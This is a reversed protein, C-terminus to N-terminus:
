LEILLEVLEKWMSYQKRSFTVILNEMGVHLEVNLFKGNPLNMKTKVVKRNLTVRPYNKYVEPPRPFADLLFADFYTTREYKGEKLAELILVDRNECLHVYEVWFDELRVIDREVVQLESSRLEIARRVGNMSQSEVLIMAYVLCMPSRVLGPMKRKWAQFINLDLTKATPTESTTM